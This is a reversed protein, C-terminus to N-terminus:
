RYKRKNKAISNIRNYLQGNNKKMGYKDIYKQELKRAQNKTLNKHKTRFDLKAKPGPGNKHEAFRILPNRKTIGVYRLKGAEDFGHYVSYTAKTANVAEAAKSAHSALAVASGAGVAAAAIGAGMILAQKHDGAAAYAACSVAAAAMGVPGPIMSAVSAINAFSKLGFQGTLDFDNVPDTPYVYANPTGGPEPDTQLFRGLSAIYVRAGMETPQLVMSTETLKEHQGVYSFSPNAITGSGRGGGAGDGITNDPTALQGTVTKSITMAEGYPGTMFLGTLAGNGNTTAMSDGHINPLTYTQIKDLTKGNPRITALVGGPLQLYAEVVKNSADTLVDPTDGSGTYGYYNNQRKIATTKGTTVTQIASRQVLRGEVDRSYTVTSSNKGDTISTLRDSSDYKFTTPTTPNGLKTTNGHTDYTPVDITPDSSSILRDAQDYCYTFNKNIKQVSNVLKFSTRNSNKAAALNASAQGCSTKSTDEYGYSFTNDGLVAKTLRGASDYNYTKSIGNETGSVIDGNVSRTVQDGITSGNALTFIQSNVRGLEDRTITSLKQNGPYDVKSIRNFEDYTIKAYSTSGLKQEILRNYSDYIFTENGLPGNRTSLRGYQDYNSNTINGRADTYRELRGLIDKQVTITGTSDSTSTILPNGGVAYNNTITRAPSGNYAPIVISIVREQSDYTTCTWPENNVRAAVIKGADDYINETTKGSLPGLGDPDPETKSKLMGGQLYAEVTTTCPNDVADNAGYYAFTTAGGSPLKSSTQRLFGNGPAEYTSTSVLNAGGPDLTTSQALGYEPNSGYNTTTTKNGLQSDYSKSSTVLSYNPTILNAFHSNGNANEDTIGPGKVFLEIAAGPAGAHAYNLNFRYSKGAEANFAYTRTNTTKGETLIGWDTVVMTDNISLIASDDNVMTFTYAGSQPFKIKGTASFGYGDMGSDPTIPAASTDFDRGLWTSNGNGGFGTTHLKPSGFFLPKKSTPDVKVNFWSVAPGIIGEDYNTDVRPVKSAYDAKPTGDANFWDSPAPGYSTIPRDETDYISTSKLGTADTTSYLLDKYKDWSQISSKGTIDTDKITRLLNDYEVRKTYGNPQSFGIVRQETAGYYSGSVGPLFEIENKTRDDYPGAAPEVVYNARGLEDYGISTLTSDDNKRLGATIVDNATNDRVGTIRGLSDYQYDTNENGPLSIRALNGNSYYIYTARGDNTIVACIMNPPAQADFGSPAKGCNIDGSYYIKANRNSNVGDSIQVIKAPSGSYTYKLAAPRRDDVPTTVSTLIGQPSFTYTQGDVDQMTFSGDDNRILVGDENIPPKYGSGTWTYEHTDGSSDTLVVSNQNVKLRDYNLDGDPDIGLNWGAPLVQAKPSLWSSPIVQGSSTDPAIVKLYMAAAGGHEFMDVTIPVSQGATLSVSNGYLETGGDDRWKSFVENGNISIRSGDDSISGFTYNGTVPVTLYGSWRVIFNDAPANPIAGGNGWNFSIQSDTRTLFAQSPSDPIKHSGDDAYYHGTLGQQAAVPRVGTQLWDSPVIQEDVPGKVFLKNYALGVAEQYEIKLKVVQGANLYVSKDYCVGGCIGTSYVQQNDVSVSMYDDNNGGFFYQGNKPAVFYGSWRAYYWDNGINGSAPSGTTWNFDINKDVRTVDAARSPAGSNNAPVNWYEGVLGNRSRLPSNYDMNIGISGGLATTTHSSSSTSLNGTALDVDVPGLNDYTQTKDKGRRSDIKIPRPPSPISYNYGDFTYAHVYYTTGDQLVGDPVTWQQSDLNGSDIIQGSEGDSGTAIRYFYQVRDGNPDSVPNVSLSIQPDIYVQNDVVPSTLTPTPPLNNYTFDVYSSGPDFYKYSQNNAWEEGNIMLWVGFDGTQIARQYIGTVNLDADDYTFDHDAYEGRCPYDLCTAHYVDIWKGAATGGARQLHLNAYLLSVNQDRFIEYPIRMASRWWFWNGPKARLAGAYMYGCRSSYCPVNDNPFNIYDGGNRTNNRYVGPDITIPFFNKDTTEVYKDDIRINLIGDKYSQKLMSSDSQIGSNNLSLTLPTIGYDADLPSNIKSSGDKNPSISAGLLKFNVSRVSDKNNIIINEKVQDSLVMYEVDVGDWLNYYHVTENGKKDTTIVPNVKNADVPKFGIQGGKDKVRVMGNKHDSPAFRAQWDNAKVTYYKPKMFPMNRPRVLSQFVNTSDGVNGDPILDTEIPQWAGDKKYNVPAFYHKKTQSGDANQIVKSFADRKAAIEGPKLKIVPKGDPGPRQESVNIPKNVHSPQADTAMVQNADTKVIQLPGPERNQGVFTDPPLASATTTFISALFVTFLFLAVLRQTNNLISKTFRLVALPIDYAFSILGTFLQYVYYSTSTLM